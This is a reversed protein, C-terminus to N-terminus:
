KTLEKIAWDAAFVVLVFGFVGVIAIAFYPFFSNFTLGDLFLSICAAIASVIMWLVIVALAKKNRRAPEAKKEAQTLMEIEENTLKM